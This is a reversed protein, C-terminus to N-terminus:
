ESQCHTLSAGELTEWLIINQTWWSPEWFCTPLSYRFVYCSLFCLRPSHQKPTVMSFLPQNTDFGACFENLQNPLLRDYLNPAKVEYYQTDWFLHRSLGLKWFWQRTKKRTETCLTEFCTGMNLIRTPRNQLMNSSTRSKKFQHIYFRPLENILSYSIEIIQIPDYRCLLSM